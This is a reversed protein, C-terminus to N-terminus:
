APGHLAVGRSWLGRGGLPKAHITAQALIRAPLKSAAAQDLHWAMNGHSHLISAPVGLGPRKSLTECIIDAKHEGTALLAIRKAEMITGLGMTIAQRPVKDLGGFGKAAASRTAKTLEVLRTRSRPDSGPPNFGIHGDPGIGLLQFDIPGAIRIIREHQECHEAIEEGTLCHRGDPVYCRGPDIGLPGIVQRRAYDHYSHQCDPDMPYYEDLFVIFADGFKAGQRRTLAALEKYTPKPSDGTSLGFTATPKLLVVALMEQAVAKAAAAPDSYIHLPTLESM